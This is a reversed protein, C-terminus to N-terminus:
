NFEKFKVSEAASCPNKTVRCQAVGHLVTCIFQVKEGLLIFAYASCDQVM